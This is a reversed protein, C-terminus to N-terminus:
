SDLLELTGYELIWINSQNIHRELSFRILIHKRTYDANKM